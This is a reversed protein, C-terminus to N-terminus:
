TKGLNLAGNRLWQFLAISEAAAKSRPAFEVATLGNTWAHVHDIRQHIVVPATEIGYGAIAARAQDSLPNRIPAANLIAIAPREALRALDITAGIATLDAASSRCPILVLQAARAAELAADAAHPATDIVALEAGTGRAAELIPGLRAAQASTVVPAEPERLDSWKSASAQPDLDVLVTALGAREAAVATACALTTKGAGGKQSIFALILM